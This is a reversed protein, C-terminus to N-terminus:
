RELSPVRRPKGDVNLAKINPKTLPVSTSKDPTGIFSTEYKLEILRAFVDYLKVYIVIPKLDNQPNSSDKDLSFRIFTWREGVPLPPRESFKGKSIEFENNGQRATIDFSTAPGFGINRLALRFSKVLRPNYNVLEPYSGDIEMDLLPFVRMWETRKNWKRTQLIAVVTVVALAITGVAVFLQAIFIWTQQENM